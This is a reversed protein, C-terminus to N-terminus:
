LRLGTDYLVACLSDLDSEITASNGRQDHNTQCHQPDAHHVKKELRHVNAWGADFRM